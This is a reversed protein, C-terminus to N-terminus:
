SLEQASLWKKTNSATVLLTRIHERTAYRSRLCTALKCDFNNIGQIREDAELPEWKCHPKSVDMKGSNNRMQISYISAAASKTSCAGSYLLRKQGKIQTGTVLKTWFVIIHLLRWISACVSTCHRVPCVATITTIGSPQTLFSKSHQFLLEVTWSSM